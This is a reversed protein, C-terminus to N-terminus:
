KAATDLFCSKQAKALLSRYRKVQAQAEENDRIVNGREGGISLANTMTSLTVYDDYPLEEALRDLACSCKNVMEYFHGNPHARMCAQVYLVRDVTPYDNKEPAAAAFQAALGLAVFSALRPLTNM